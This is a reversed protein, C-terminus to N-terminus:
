FKALSCATPQLLKHPQFTEEKFILEFILRVTSVDDAETDVPGTPKSRVDNIATVIAAARSKDKCAIVHCYLLGIHKYFNVYAVRKADTPFM